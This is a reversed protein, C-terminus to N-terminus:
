ASPPPINSYRSESLMRLSCTIAACQTDNVDFSMAMLLFLITLTDCQGTEFRLSAEPRLGIARISSFCTVTESPVSLGREFLEASM